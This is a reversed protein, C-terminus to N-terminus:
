RSLKSGQCSKTASENETLHQKKIAIGTQRLQNVFIMSMLLLQTVTDENM